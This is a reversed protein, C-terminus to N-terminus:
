IVPPARPSDPTREIGPPGHIEPWRIQTVAPETHCVPVELPAVLIIAFDLRFEPAAAQIGNTHPQKMAEICCCENPKPAQKVITAKPHCCSDAEPAPQVVPTKTGVPTMFCDKMPLGLYCRISGASAVSAAVMVLMALTLKAAISALVRLKM